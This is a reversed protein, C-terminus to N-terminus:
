FYVGVYTEVQVRSMTVKVEDYTRENANAHVSVGFFGPGVHHGIGVQGGAAYAYQVSDLDSYSRGARYISIGLSPALGLYFGNYTWIHGYGLKVHAESVKIETLDSDSDYFANQPAPILPATSTIETQSLGLTLFASGGPVKQKESQDFLAPFSFREPNLVFSAAVGRTKVRMSEFQPMDDGETWSDEYDQPNGIYMGRLDKSYAELGLWGFHALVHYDFGTTKGRKSAEQWTNDIPRSVSLSYQDVALSLGGRLPPNNVYQIRKLEADDDRGERESKYEETPEVTVGVLSV